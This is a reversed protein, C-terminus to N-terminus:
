QAAAPVPVPIDQGTATDFIALQGRRAALKLATDRDAVVESLDLYLTNTSDDIWAGVYVPAIDRWDGLSEIWTAANEVYQTIWAIVGVNGYIRSSASGEGHFHMKWTFEEGMSVIYGPRSVTTGSAIDVTAGGNLVTESMLTSAAARIIGYNEYANM